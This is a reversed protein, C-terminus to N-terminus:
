ATDPGGEPVLVHTDGEWQKWLFSSSEASDPGCDARLGQSTADTAGLPGHFESSDNVTWTDKGSSECRVM